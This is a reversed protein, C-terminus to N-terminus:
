EQGMCCITTSVTQIARKPGSLCYPVRVYNAAAEDVFEQGVAAKEDHSPRAEDQIGSNPVKELAAAPSSRAEVADGRFGANALGLAVVGVRQSCPPPAPAAM